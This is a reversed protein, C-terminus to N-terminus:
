NRETPKAETHLWIEASNDRLNQRAFDLMQEPQWDIVAQALQELRSFDHDFQTISSWLRQSRIRLNPDQDRLQRVLSQQAATWGEALFDPLETLFSEAFSALCSRLKSVSATPSQVYMLIGPVQQMPLYNSGVLYGLQQETRLQNFIEPSIFQNLLMFGAQEHIDANGGQVFWLLASDSHSSTAARQECVGRTLMRPPIAANLPAQEALRFTDNLVQAINDVATAPVDGHCLLDVNLQEFFQGTIDEFSNFDTQKLEVALEDMRFSGPQLYFNLEAFLKNMPKHTHASRWNSILKQRLAQWRKPDPLLSRMCEVVQELLKVQAPSFGAIHLTVGRQQPYLNFHLGAIEADYCRENLEDLILECWLRANAFNKASQAVEPLLFGAYIHGKPQRFDPDQLHWIRLAKNITFLQPNTSTSSSDELPHADLQGSIFENKSPLSASFDAPEQKFLQLRSRSFPKISYPTHYLETVKDTPLARHIITMRLREPQLLDLFERAKHKNLGDMRYDGYIVDEAKYHQANVALQSALEVTRVPEHYRFNLEVLQKREQYRWDDIGTAAILRIYAFVWRVIEDIHQLGEETLQLNINFDKFNSGSIGGGASLSNVWDRQRLASYLSAPGEYGIIHAIFSTTKYAYDNDIAPLPFSLILRRADKVPQVHMEVGLQEPLYLPESLKQKPSDERQIPEFHAAALQALQDLSQPGALVLRMRQSRYHEAFFARLQQVLPLDKQDRLTTLNGVSFKSFPHAPNATAKHVQYLRRLEDNLKLRYESEVAQREKEVWEQALLPQYFFRAFRDLASDLQDHQISFYFSTYETGTWANHHGGYTSIFNQYAEPDPYGETGLFLMHELFHALGQSEQPDDFHGAHISMAAAAQDADPEHICLVELKNNLQILRYDREDTPSKILAPLQM